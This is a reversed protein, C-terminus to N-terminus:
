SKYIVKGIVYGVIMAIVVVVLKYGLATLFDPTSPNYLLAALFGLVMAPFLEPNEKFDILPKITM